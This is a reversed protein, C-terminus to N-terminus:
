SKENLEEQVFQGRLTPRNFAPAHCTPCEPKWETELLKGTWVITHGIVIRAEYTQNGKPELYRNEWKGNSLLQFGSCFYDGADLDGPQKKEIVDLTEM